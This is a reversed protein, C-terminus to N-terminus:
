YNAETFSRQYVTAHVPLALRAVSALAARTINAMFAANIRAPTDDKSNHGSNRSMGGDTIYLAPYKRYWFAAHDSDMLFFTSEGYGSAEMPIVKLGQVHQRASQMFLGALPKSATNSISAVFDGRFQNAAIAQYAEPVTKGWDEPVKHTNLSDRYTGIADLILAAQVREQRRIGGHFVFYNSGRYEEVSLDFGVGAITNRFHHGSLVRMIELMAALGTANANAGPSGRVADFHAGVIVLNKEDTQGPHRGIVNQGAVGAYEFDQRVAQLQAGGFVSEIMAKTAALHRKGKKTEHNREGSILLLDKMMRATDVEGLLEGVNVPYGDDAILKFHAKKYDIGTGAYSWEIKRANGVAVASGVDGTAGATNVAFPLAPAPAVRFAIEVRADEPDALDYTIRVRKAVTDASVTVNELAPPRNQAPALHAACCGLWLAIHNFKM